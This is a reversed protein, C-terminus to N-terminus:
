EKCDKGYIVVQGDLIEYRAEIAKCIITLKEFFSQNGLSATLPCHQMLEEDYIIDINYSMELAAFVESVPTDSFEFYKSPNAAAVETQNIAPKEVISKALRVEKRSFTVRQNPTLVIGDLERNTAKQVIDPDATTFVSVRGTKVEVSVVADAPYAKIRFSTGLVKTVLENAYVLFPKSPNKAIQFFAEGSLYVERTRGKFAPNYSIKSGKHLTVLSGDSLRINMPADARNIKEILLNSAASIRATYVPEGAPLSRYYLGLSSILLLLVAAAMKAWNQYYWKEPQLKIEEAQFQAATKHVNSLIEIDSLPQHQVRLAQVVQRAEQITNFKDPNEAVWKQWFTETAPTPFLVWQRFPEDLIFDKSHYERYKDM